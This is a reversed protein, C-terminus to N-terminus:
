CCLRAWTMRVAGCAGPGSPSLESRRPLAPPHPPGPPSWGHGSRTRANASLMSRRTPSAPGRRTNSPWGNSPWRPPPTPRFEPPLDPDAALTVTAVTTIALAPAAVMGALLERRTATKTTTMPNTETMPRIPPNLSSHRSDRWPSAAILSPPRRATLAGVTESGWSTLWLGSPGKSWGTAGSSTM